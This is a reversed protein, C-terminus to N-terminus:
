PVRELEDLRSLAVHADFMQRLRSALRQPDETARDRITRRAADIKEQDTAQPVCPSHRDRVCRCLDCWREGGWDHIWTNM